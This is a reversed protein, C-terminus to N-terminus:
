QLVERLVNLSVNAGCLVIVVRKGSFRAREKLFGAVAAGAAGEVLVHHSSIVTRM